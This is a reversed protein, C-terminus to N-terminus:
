THRDRELTRIWAMIQQESEAPYDYQWIAATERALDCALEMTELLARWLDDKDYGGFTHPLKASARPTAWEHLFRGNRWTDHEEGYVACAQWEMLDLLYGKLRNHCLHNARWLEGRRLVKATREGFLWVRKVVDLFEAETPQQVCRTEVPLELEDAGSNDKDFLIRYGRRVLPDYALSEMLRRLTDTAPAIMYDVKFGGAYLVLWEPNGLQASTEVQVWVEGMKAVWATNVLYADPTTTFFILDLDSWRDASKHARARSGVVIAARINAENYAWSSFAEEIEKYTTM